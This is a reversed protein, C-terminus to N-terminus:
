DFQLEVVARGGAGVDIDRQQRDELRRGEIRHRGPPVDRLVFSRGDSGMAKGDLFPVCWPTCQIAVEGPLPVAVPTRARPEPPTRAIPPPRAVRTSRPSPRSESTDTAQNSTAAPPPQIPTPEPRSVPSVVTPAPTPVATAAKVIFVGIALVAAGVLPGLVRMAMNRATPGSPGLVEEVFNGSPHDRFYSDQASSAEAFTPVTASRPAAPEPSDDNSARSGVKAALDHLLSQRTAGLAALEQELAALM